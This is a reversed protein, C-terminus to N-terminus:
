INRRIERPLRGPPRARGRGEARGHSRARGGVARPPRRVEGPRPPRPDGVEAVERAGDRLPAATASRRRRPSPRTSDGPARRVVAPDWFGSRERRLEAARELCYARLGAADAPDDGSLLRLSTRAVELGEPDSGAPHGLLSLLRDHHDERSHWGGPVAAAALGDWLGILADLGAPECTLRALAYGPERPLLSLSVGVREKQSLDFEHAADAGADHLRAAETRTARRLKWTAVAAREVLVARTHSQPKWDDFWARKESEFDAPNEGPLVVQEARLGHKLGNFRTRDTRRPGTSKQANKRNAEIQARTAM